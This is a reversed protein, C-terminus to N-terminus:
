LLNLHETSLTGLTPTPIVIRSLYLPIGLWVVKLLFPFPVKRLGELEIAVEKMTPRDEGHLQICNKVLEAM